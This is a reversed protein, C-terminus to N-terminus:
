VGVAQGDAGLYRWPLVVPPGKGARAAEWEVSGPQPRRPVNPVTRRNVDFSIRPEDGQQPPFGPQPISSVAPTM